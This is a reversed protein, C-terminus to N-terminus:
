SLTFVLVTALLQYLFGFIVLLGGFFAPAKFGANSEREAYRSVRELRRRLWPGVIYESTRRFPMDIGFEIAM